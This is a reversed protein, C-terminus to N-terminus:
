GTEGSVREDRTDLVPIVLEPEEAASTRLRIARPDGVPRRGDARLTLVFRRGPVITRLEGSLGPPLEVGRMEVAGAGVYELMVPAPRGASTVGPLRVEAPFALLSTFGVGSVPVVAATGLEVVARMVGPARPAFRVRYGVSGDPRRPEAEVSVADSSAVPAAPPAGPPLTLRRVASGGVAVYGFYIAAPRVGPDATAVPVTLTTEPRVPDNTLLRIARADAAAGPIARCTVVLAQTAAPALTTPRAPSVRCGCDPVLAHLVLDRGGDNRIEYRARVIGNARARGGPPELRPGHVDVRPAARSCGAVLAAALAAALRRRRGGTV